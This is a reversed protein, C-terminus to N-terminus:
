STLTCSAAVTIPTPSFATSDSNIRALAPNRLSKILRPMIVGGVFVGSSRWSRVAHYQHKIPGGRRAARAEHDPQGSRRDRLACAAPLRMAQMARNFQSRGFSYGGTMAFVRGTHPDMAVLAGQVEPIQRIRWPGAGGKKTQAYETILQTTVDPIGDRSVFIVDGAKLGKGAAVWKVDNPDLTGATGDALGLKASDKGASRVLAIQWTNGSGAIKEKGDKSNAFNKLDEEFNDTVEIKGIAGRFGHRRDYTELGARLATHAILQLNSDLTSRISLGGEYFAQQAQKEDAFGALKGEKGLKLIDRRLEEVYYASAQNEDTDLREVTTLPEAMAAEAAAKEIYGNALMRGLVYNRRQIAAEPDNYPNARGPAQPLGALLAAEALTLQSLSKGFYNLSAAGVGYSRGGLYIENM